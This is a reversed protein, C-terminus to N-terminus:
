RYICKEVTNVSTTQTDEGFGSENENDLAGSNKEMRDRKSKTIVSPKGLPKKAQKIFMQGANLIFIKGGIKLEVKGQPVMYREESDSLEIGVITGRIGMSATKSKLQFGRPNLKGIKGTITKFAGNGFKFKAKPKKEVDFLYDEINLTSSKGISIMTNDKFLLQVRANKETTIIDLKNIATHLNAIKFQGNRKIIVDGKIATVKAIQAHLLGFSLLIIFLLYKM